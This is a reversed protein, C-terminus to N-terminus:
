EGPLWRSSPRPLRIMRLKQLTLWALNYILQRSDPMKTRKQPLSISSIMSNRSQSSALPTSSHTGTFSTSVSSIAAGDASSVMYVRSWPMRFRESSRDMLIRAAMKSLPPPAAALGRSRVYWISTVDVAWASPFSVFRIATSRPQLFSKTETMSMVMLSYSSASRSALHLTLKLQWFRSCYRQVAMITTLNRFKRLQM